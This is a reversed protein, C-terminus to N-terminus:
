LYSNKFVIKLLLFSYLLVCRQGEQNGERMGMVTHFVERLREEDDESWFAKKQKATASRTGYGEIIETADRSTKWFLLEMFIKKNTESAKLFKALIFKAFKAM